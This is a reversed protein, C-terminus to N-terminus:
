NTRMLEAFVRQFLVNSPIETENTVFMKALEKNSYANLNEGEGSYVVLFNLQSNEAAYRYFDNIQKIIYEKSVSPHVRITINKTCIAYSRGQPGEAQGYNADFKEKALLASGKGHRGQTNSGFVLIDNVLPNLIRDKDYINLTHIM